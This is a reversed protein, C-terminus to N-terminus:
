VSLKPIIYGLFTSISNFLWVLSLCILFRSTYLFLSHKCCLAVSFLIYKIIVKGTFFFDIDTVFHLVSYSVSLPLKEKPFFTLIKLSTCYKQFIYKAVVKRASFFDIDGNFHLVILYVSFYSGQPSYILIQLLTCYM